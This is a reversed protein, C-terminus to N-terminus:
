LLYILTATIEDAGRRVNGPLASVSPPCCSEWVIAPDVHGAAVTAEVPLWSSDPRQRTEPATISMSSHRYLFRSTGDALLSVYNMVADQRARTTFSPGDDHSQRIHACEKSVFTQSYSTLPLGVPLPSLTKFIVLPEAKIQPLLLCTGSGRQSSQNNTVSPQPAPSPAGPDNCLPLVMVYPQRHSKIIAEFACATM